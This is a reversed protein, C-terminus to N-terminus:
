GSFFDMCVLMREKMELLDEEVEELPTRDLTENSLNNAIEPDMADHETPQKSQRM